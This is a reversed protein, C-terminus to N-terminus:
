QENKLSKPAIVFTSDQGDQPEWSRALRLTIKSPAQLSKVLKFSFRQQMPAGVLVKSSDSNTATKAKVYGSSIFEFQQKDYTKVTWQYGTTPIAKVEIYFTTQEPTLTIKVAEDAYLPIAFGLGLMLVLSTVCKIMMKLM